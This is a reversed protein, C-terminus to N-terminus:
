THPEAIAVRGVKPQYCPDAFAEDRPNYVKYMSAVGSQGIACSDSDFPLRRWHSCYWCLGMKNLLCRQETLERFPDAFGCGTSLCWLMFLRVSLQQRWSGTM